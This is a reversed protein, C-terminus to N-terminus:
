PYERMELRVSQRTHQTHGECGGPGLLRPPKRLSILRRARYGPCEILMWALRLVTPL